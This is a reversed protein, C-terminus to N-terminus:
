LFQPDVKELTSCDNELVAVRFERHRGHIVNSINHSLRNLVLALPRYNAADM